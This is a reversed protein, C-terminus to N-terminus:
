RRTRPLSRRLMHYPKPRTKYKIACALNRHSHPQPWWKKLLRRRESTLREVILGSKHREIQRSRIAFAYTSCGQAITEYTPAPKGQTGRSLNQCLNRQASGVLRATSPRAEFIQPDARRACMWNSMKPKPLRPRTPAGARHARAWAPAHLGQRGGCSQRTIEFRANPVSVSLRVANLLVVRTVASVSNCRVCQRASVLGFSRYASILTAICDAWPAARAVRALRRFQLTARGARLPAPAVCVM